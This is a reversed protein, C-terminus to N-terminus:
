RRYERGDFEDAGAASGEESEDDLEESFFLDLNFDYDDDSKTYYIGSTSREYEAFKARLSAPFERLCEAMTPPGFYHDMLEYGSGSSLKSAISTLPAGNTKMVILLADGGDDDGIIESISEDIFRPDCDFRFDDLMDRTIKMVKELLVEFVGVSHIAARITNGYKHAMWPAILVISNEVSVATGMAAAGTLHRRSKASFFLESSEAKVSQEDSSAHVANHLIDEGYLARLSLPALKRAMEPDTPGVLERVAAIANVGFIQTAIFVGSGMSECLSPFWPQHRHVAYLTEFFLSPMTNEVVRAVYLGCASIRELIEDKHGLAHPRIMLITEEIDDMSLTRPLTKLRMLETGDPLV